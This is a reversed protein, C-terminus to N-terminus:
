GISGALFGMGPKPLTVGTQGLQMTSKGAIRSGFKPRVRQFVPMGPRQDVSDAAILDSIMCSISRGRPKHIMRTLVIRM